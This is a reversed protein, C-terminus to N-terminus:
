KEKKQIRQSKRVTNINLFFPDTTRKKSKLSKRRKLSNFQQEAAQYGLGGPEYLREKARKLSMVARAGGVVKPKIASWLQSGISIPIRRNEVTNINNNLNQFGGQASEVILELNSKRLQLLKKYLNHRQYSSLNQAHRLLNRVNIPISEPPEWITNQVGDIIRSVIAGNNRIWPGGGPNLRGIYQNNRENRFFIVIFKALEDESLRILNRYRIYPTNKTKLITKRLEQIFQTHTQSTM